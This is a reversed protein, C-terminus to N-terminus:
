GRPTGSGAAAASCAKGGAEAVAPNTTNPIKTAANTTRVTIVSRQAM